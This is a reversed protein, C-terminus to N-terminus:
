IGSLKRNKSVFAFIEQRTRGQDEPAQHKGMLSLAPRGKGAMATVTINATTEGQWKSASSETQQGTKLQLVSPSSTTKFTLKCQRSSM